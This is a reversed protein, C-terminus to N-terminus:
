EVSVATMASPLQDVPQDRKVRAVGVEQHQGMEVAEVEQDKGRAVVVELAQVLVVVRLRDATERQQRVMPGMVGLM